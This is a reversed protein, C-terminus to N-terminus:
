KLQCPRSREHSNQQQHIVKAETSHTCKFANLTFNQLPTQPTTEKLKNKWLVWNQLANLHTSGDRIWFRVSTLLLKFMHEWNIRHKLVKSVLYANIGMM